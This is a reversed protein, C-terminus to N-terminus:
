KLLGQVPLQPDTVWPPLSSSFFDFSLWKDALIEETLVPFAYMTYPSVMCQSIKEGEIM